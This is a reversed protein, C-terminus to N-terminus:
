KTTTYMTIAAVLVIGLAVAILSKRSQDSAADGKLPEAAVPVTVVEPAVEPAAEPAAVEPAAAAAPEPEPIV